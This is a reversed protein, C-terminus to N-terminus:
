MDASCLKYFKLKEIIQKEELFRDVYLIMALITCRIKKLSIKKM